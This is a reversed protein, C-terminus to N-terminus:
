ICVKEPQFEEIADRHSSIKSNLEDVKDLKRKRARAADGRGRLTRKRKKILVAQDSKIDIGM